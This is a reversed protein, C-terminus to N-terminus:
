QVQLCTSFGGRGISGAQHDVEYGDKGFGAQRRCRGGSRQADHAASFAALAAVALLSPLSPEPVTRVDALTTGIAINVASCVQLGFAGAYSPAASTGDDSLVVPPAIHCERQGARWRPPTMVSKTRWAATSLWAPRAESPDGDPVVRRHRRRAAAEHDPSAGASCRRGSMAALSRATAAAFACIPM